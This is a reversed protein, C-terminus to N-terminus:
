ASNAAASNVTSSTVTRWTTPPKPPPSSPSRLPNKTPPPKPENLTTTTPSLPNSMKAHSPPRLDAATVWIPPPDSLNPKVHSHLFGLGLFYIHSISIFNFNFNFTSSPSLLTFHIHYFSLFFYFSFHALPCHLIVTHCQFNPVLLISNKTIYLEFYFENCPNLRFRFYFWLLQDWIM